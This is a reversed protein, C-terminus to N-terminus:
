FYVHELTEVVVCINCVLNPVNCVMDCWSCCCLFLCRLIKMGCTIITVIPACVLQKCYGARSRVGDPVANPPHFAVAWPSQYPAVSETILWLVSRSWQPSGPGTRRFVPSLSFVYVPSVIGTSPVKSMTTSSRCPWWCVKGNNTTGPSLGLRRPRFQSTLTGMSQGWIWTMAESWEGASSVTSPFCSPIKLSDLCTDSM